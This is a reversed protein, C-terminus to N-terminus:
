SEAHRPFEIGGRGSEVPTELEGEQQRARDDGRGAQQAEQAQPM